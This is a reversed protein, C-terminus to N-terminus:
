EEQRYLWSSLDNERNMKAIATMFNVNNAQLSGHHSGHVNM